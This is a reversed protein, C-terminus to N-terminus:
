SIVGLVATRGSDGGKDEFFLFGTDSVAPLRSHAVMSCSNRLM